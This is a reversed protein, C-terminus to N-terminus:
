SPDEEPNEGFLYQAMRAETTEQDKTACQFCIQECNPGYPRCEAVKGCLECVRDEEVAIFGRGSM